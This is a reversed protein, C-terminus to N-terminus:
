KGAWWMSSDKPDLYQINDNKCWNSKHKRQGLHVWRQLHGGSAVMRGFRWFKSVRYDPSSEVGGLGWQASLWNKKVKLTSSSSKMSWKTVSWGKPRILHISWWRPSTKTRSSELETILKIKTTDSTALQSERSEGYSRRRPHSSWHM